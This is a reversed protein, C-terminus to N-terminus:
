NQDRSEGFHILVPLLKKMATPNLNEMNDLRTHYTPDLTETTMGILSLAPLGNIIFASADSAGVTLPLTKVPTGLAEFSSELSSILDKDFFCLTNLENTAITLYEEDKITDINVLLANEEILAKKNAKVYSFAGRLGAEESGFSIIRVRTNQLRNEAFHKGLAMSLAVGTLNDNAGHVVEKGHM